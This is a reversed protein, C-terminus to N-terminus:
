FAYYYAFFIYKANLVLRINCSSCINLKICKIYFSPQRSFLAIITIYILGKETYYFYTPMIESLSLIVAVLKFYYALRKFASSRILPILSM